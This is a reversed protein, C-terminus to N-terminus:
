GATGRRWIVWAGLALAPDLVSFAIVPGAPALDLWWLPLLLAPLAVRDAVTALGFSEARTRAGFLYLWGIVMVAVGVLRFYGEEYGQFGPMFLLTGVLSPLLYMGAGLALYLLGNWATYRALATETGAPRQWLRGWFGATKSEHQM